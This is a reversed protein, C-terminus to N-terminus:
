GREDIVLLLILTSARQFFFGPFPQLLVKSCWGRGWLGLESKEDELCRDVPWRSFGVHLTVRLPVDSRDSLFYKVEDRDLVDRAVVLRYPGVIRGDRETWWLAM